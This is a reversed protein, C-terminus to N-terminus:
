RFIILNKWLCNHINASSFRVGEPASPVWLRYELTQRCHFLPRRPVCPVRSVKERVSSCALMRIHAYMCVFLIRSVQQGYTKIFYPPLGSCVAGVTRLIVKSYLMLTFTSSIMKSWDHITPRSKSRKASLVLCTSRSFVRTLGTRSSNTCHNKSISNM